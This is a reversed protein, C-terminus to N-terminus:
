INEYKSEKLKSWALRNGPNNNLEKIFEKKAEALRNMNEFILGRLFYVEPFFQNINIVKETLNLSMIFNGKYFNIVAQYFLFNACNPYYNLASTLIKEAKNYDGSNILVEILKQYSYIDNKRIIENYWISMAKEKQGKEWLLTARNYPQYIWLLSLFSFCFALGIFLNKM